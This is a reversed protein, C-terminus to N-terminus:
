SHLMSTSGNHKPTTHCSPACSINHTSPLISEVLHWSIRSTWHELTQLLPRLVRYLSQHWYMKHFAKVSTIYCIPPESPKRHYPLLSQDQVEESVHLLHLYGPVPHLVDTYHWPCLCLGRRGAARWVRYVADDDPIVLHCERALVCISVRVCSCVTGFRLKVCDLDTCKQKMWTTLEYM